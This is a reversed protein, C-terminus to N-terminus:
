ALEEARRVKVELCEEQKYRCSDEDDMRDIEHEVWVANAPVRSWKECLKAVHPQPADSRFSM